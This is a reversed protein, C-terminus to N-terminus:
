KCQGPTVSTFECSERPGADPFDSACKRAEADVLSNFAQDKDFATSTAGVCEGSQCDDDGLCVAGSPRDRRGPNCQLPVSESLFVLHKVDRRECVQEGPCKVEAPKAIGSGGGDAVFDWAKPAVCCEACIGECCTNGQKCESPQTSDAPQDCPEGIPRDKMRFPPANCSSNGVVRIQALVARGTGRKTIFIRPPKGSNRPATVQTKVEKFGVAAIPQDYDITGDGNFDLGVSVQASPDVDAITTFTLCKQSSSKLEQSITTPTDVLEVGFDNKHWTPAQRVHGQDLRWACLAEGCWLRFTADDILDEDCGAIALACALVAMVVVGFRLKRKM